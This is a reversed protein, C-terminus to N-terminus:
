PLTELVAKLGALAALGGIIAFNRWDFWIWPQRRRRLKPQEVVVFEVDTWDKKAM